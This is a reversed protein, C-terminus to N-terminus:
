SQSATNKPNGSGQVKKSYSYPKGMARFGPRCDYIALTGVRVNGTDAFDEPLDVTAVTAIGAMALVRAIWQLGRTSVIMSAYINIAEQLGRAPHRMTSKRIFQPPTPNQVLTAVGPM